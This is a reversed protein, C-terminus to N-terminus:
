GQRRQERRQQMRERREKMRNERQARLEKAKAQQEPTLLAFIESHVRARLVAMDAQAEALAQSTARIRGEDVPIAEVAQRHGARATDVKARAEKMEAEHRQRIDRIQERQADTLNLGAFGRGMGFGRHGEGRPGRGGQALAGAALSTVLLAAAAAVAIPRSMRNM